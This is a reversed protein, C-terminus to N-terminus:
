KLVAKIVRYLNWGCIGFLVGYFLLVGTRAILKNGIAQASQVAASAAIQRSLAPRLASRKEQREDRVDVQALTM